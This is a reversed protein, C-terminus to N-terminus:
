ARKGPKRVYLFTPGSRLDSPPRLITATIQRSQLIFEHALQTALYPPPPHDLVVVQIRYEDLAHRLERRLYASGRADDSRLVEFIADSQAFSGKGALTGYWPHALVLVPGPLMRLRAMLETGAARASKHPIADNPLTVLVALQVLVLVTALIAPVPGLRRLRAFALGGILGCAAYAPMLTNVFGGTHLRSFWAALLLGAAAALEYGVGLQRAQLRRLIAPLARGRDSRGRSRSRVAVSAVLALAALWDLPLLHRYLSHIWFGVWVRPDWPQGALESVIYYRYWGHTLGDLLVTSGALLAALMGLAIIGVRPRRSALWVLAPVVAVLGIQKTFFALFAVTGVIAGARMGHAHRGLWFALLTLAVFLSDLRGVDFWWGTLSYSAAFLGGAVAGAARDGTADLTLRWLVGIGVLSSAFSVLRLPLFGIGTIEAVAASVWAYFPTYTYSVYGLTPATYLSKGQMVRRVIEVGGGELWNLEYPYDLRHLATWIYVAIPVLAALAVLRAGWAAVAVAGRAPLSLRLRAAAAARVLTGRVVVGM